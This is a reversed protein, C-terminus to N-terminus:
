LEKKSEFTSIISSGVAAKVSVSISANNTIIRFNRCSPTSNYIDRVAHLLKLFNSVTYRNHSVTCVYSRHVRLICRNFLNDRHHNSPFNIVILVLFSLSFSLFLTQLLFNLSLSCSLLHLNQVTYLSITPKAPNIPAPLVSTARAM